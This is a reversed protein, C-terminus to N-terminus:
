ERESLWKDGSRKSIRAVELPLRDRETESIRGEELHIALGQYSFISLYRLAPGLIENLKDVLRTLVALTSRIVFIRQHLRLGLDAAGDYHSVSLFLEKAGMGAIMCQTAALWLAM